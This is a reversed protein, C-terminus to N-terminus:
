NGSPKPTVDCISFDAGRAQRMAQIKAHFRASATDEVMLRPREPPPLDAMVRVQLMRDPRKPPVGVAAARVVDLGQVV